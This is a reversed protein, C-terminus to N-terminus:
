DQGLVDLQISKLRKMVDNAGRGFYDHLAAYEAFLKDYVASAEPNPTYTKEAPQVLVKTADFINDYGGGAKGAALSGLVAAGLAGGNESSAVSIPRKTVDAFIQMLLPNKRSMGGTAFIHDTVIGAKDFTELIMRTGYAIAEILARYMEEPKTTLRMGLMLGTLDNDVLVSRNGNWWDLALLGSEGPKLKAAKETLYQHINQGAKHAAEAYSAPVCNDVFWALHDGFGSQGCEYGYFGPLMGDKVVGFCGPVVTEKKSILMQCGSTGMILVMQNEKPDQLAGPVGSHADIIAVGVATGKNLGTIRAGNDDIEGAKSGIPVVPYKLKKAVVNKLKSSLAEFFAESPYGESDSYLAKYGAACSNRVYHGTIQGVIWDGAEIYEDMDAYLEPDEEAIKWLRPFLTESSAKGGYRALFKEGRAEAIETLRNAYDQAGHHKWLQVYAMPDDKYKDTMCLPTGDKDIPLVTCATFDIGLGIVEDPSVGNNELVGPIVASLSEIYDQPHQLAYDVPLKKGSPLATDMVAHAYPQESLRLKAEGTEANILIARASLTGFDVGIVYKAM